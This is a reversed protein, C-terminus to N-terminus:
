SIHLKLFLSQLEFRNYLNIIQNEPIHFDNVISIANNIRAFDSIKHTDAAMEFLAGRNSAYQIYRPDLDLRKKNGNIEIIVRNSVCADIIYHMDIDFGPKSGYIRNTPHALIDIQGSEIAKIIRKEADKKNMDYHTHIGGIVYDFKNLQNEPYDLEGNFLIECEIGKFVYISNNSHNLKDIQSHQSCIEEDSIGLLTSRSHDSIGIYDYHHEIGYNIVEDLECFGDSSVTHNHLTGRISKGCCCLNLVSDSLDKHYYSTPFVSDDMYTLSHYLMQEFDTTCGKEIFYSKLCEINIIKNSNLFNRLKNLDLYLPSIFPHLWQPIRSKYNMIYGINGTESLENIDHILRLSIGMGVLEDASKGFLEGKKIYKSVTEMMNKAYQITSVDCLFTSSQLLDFYRYFLIKSLHRRKTLDM